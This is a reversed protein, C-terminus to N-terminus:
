PRGTVASNAASQPRFLFGRHGVPREPAGDASLLAELLLERELELGASRAEALLEARSLVWGLYETDYGHAYARQLVVFSPVELAVPLRTVYLFREAAEGLAALTTRWDEAYQLSGSALVLDFRRALVGDDATFEVQPLVERGREALAQVDKVCWDLEVEPLLARSLAFYHGIGGGWDLVSLRARGHAARALVYGYSLVTNHASHDDSAVHDATAAEHHIGLPGNAEVATLFAPWRAVQADAVAEVDWGKAPRRWGEPVYEWEPPHPQPPPSDPESLPIPDPRRHGLSISLKKVVLLVIPPTLAKVWWRLRSTM